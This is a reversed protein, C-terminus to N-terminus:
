GEYVEPNACRPMRRGALAARLAASRKTAAVIALVLALSWLIRHAVVEVPGVGKLPLFYLPLLGWLVYAGVGQLLGLRQSTTPPDSRAM